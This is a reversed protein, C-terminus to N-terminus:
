FNVIDLQELKHLINNVDNRSKSLERAIRLPSTKGTCRLAVQLDEEDIMGMSVIKHLVNEVVLLRPLVEAVRGGQCLNEIDVEITQFRSKETTTRFLKIDSQHKKWFRSSIKNIVEILKDVDDDADSISCFLIRSLPHYVIVITSNESEVVRTM